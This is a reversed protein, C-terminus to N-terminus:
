LHGENSKMFFAAVAFVIHAPLLQWYFRSLNRRPPNPHLSMVIKWVTMAIIGSLSGILLGNKVTPKSIRQHWLYNYVVVFLAGVGYHAVWGIFEAQMKKAGTARRVLTALMDPEIFNEEKIESLIYSYLTMASTAICNMKIIEKPQM